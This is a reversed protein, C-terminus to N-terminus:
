DELYEEGELGKIYDLAQEMSEVVAGPVRGADDCERLLRLDDAYESEEIERRQKAGLKKHVNPHLDMHRAILWLTRDTVAGRLSDVAAAAHDRTGMAKGVDHLLAALLFEEHYPRAERALHFVQLSHYLADGEPHTAPDQKVGELPALRLRYVAFRDITESLAPVPLDGEPEPPSEEEGEGEDDETAAREKQLAVFQDRVEDDSPLDGPRIRHGLVAAAKRKAAYYDQESAAQLRDLPAPDDRPVEFSDILRRAAERAIQRRLRDDAAAARFRKKYKDHM